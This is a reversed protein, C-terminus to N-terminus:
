TLFISSDARFNESIVFPRFLHIGNAQNIERPEGNSFSACLFWGAAASEAAVVSAFGFSLHALVAHQESQLSACICSCEHREGVISWDICMAPLTTLCCQVSLMM